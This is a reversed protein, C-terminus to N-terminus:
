YPSRASSHRPLADPTCASRRRASSRHAALRRQRPQIRVPQRVDRPQMRPQERRAGLHRSGVALELVPLAQAEELRQRLSEPRRRRQDEDDVIQLPCICVGDFPELIEQSRCGVRAAEQDARDARLLLLVIRTESRQETVEFAVIQQRRDRETREVLRGGRLQGAFDSLPRQVLLCQCARKAFGFAMGQEHDFSAAHLQSVLLAGRAVGPQRSHLRHDRRPQRQERLLRTGGGLDRRCHSTIEPEVDQRLGAIEFLVREDAREVFEPPPVDDAHLRVLPPVEAVVTDPLDRVACDARRATAEDVPSDRLPHLQQERIAQVLHARRDGHM